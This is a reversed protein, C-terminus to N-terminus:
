VGNGRLFRRRITASFRRVRISTWLFLVLAESSRLHSLTYNFIFRFVYIRNIHRKFVLRSNLIIRNVGGFVYINSIGIYM